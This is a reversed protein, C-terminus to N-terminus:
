ALRCFFESSDSEIFKTSSSTPSQLRISAAVPPEPPRIAPQPGLAFRMARLRSQAITPTPVPRAVAAAKIALWQAGTSISNILVRVYVARAAVTPHRLLAIRLSPWAMWTCHWRVKRHPIPLVPRRVPLTAPMLLKSIVARHAHNLRAMRALVMTVMCSEWPTSIRASALPLTVPIIDAGIQNAFERILHPMLLRLLRRIHASSMVAPMRQLRGQLIKSFTFSQRVVM